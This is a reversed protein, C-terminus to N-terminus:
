LNISVQKKGYDRLQRKVYSGSGDMIVQKRKYENNDEEEEEDDDSTTATQCYSVFTKIASDNALLVQQMMIRMKRMMMM